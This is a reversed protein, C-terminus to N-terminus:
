WHNCETDNRESRQDRQPIAQSDFYYCFYYRCSRKRNVTDGSTTRRNFMMLILLTMCSSQSHYFAGTLTAEAETEAGSFALLIDSRDEGEPPLIMEAGRKEYAKIKTGTKGTSLHRHLLSDVHVIMFRSPPLARVITIIEAKAGAAGEPSGVIEILPSGREIASPEPLFVEVSNDRALNRFKSKRHIFRCVSSAYLKRDYSGGHANTLDLTVIPTANAKEM